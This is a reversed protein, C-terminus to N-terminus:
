FSPMCRSTKIQNHTHTLMLRKEHSFDRQLGMMVDNAFRYDRGYNLAAGYAIFRLWFDYPLAPDGASSFDDQKKYGYITVTYSTNPITRFVFENGYYLMATPAGPTLVDTNQVGWYGYFQGPDQYVDLPYWSLSGTPPDTLSIFADGSISVFDVTSGVDNFTYVGTTNTEDIEFVLTGFQEFMRVEDGM